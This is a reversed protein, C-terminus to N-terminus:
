FARNLQTKMSTLYTPKYGFPSDTSGSSTSCQGNIVSRPLQDLDAGFNDAMAPLDRELQGFDGHGPVQVSLDQAEDVPQPGRQRWSSGQDLRRSTNQAELMGAATWRLAMEANRWRKVNRCVQRM